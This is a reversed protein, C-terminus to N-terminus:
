AGSVRDACPLGTSRPGPPTRGFFGAGRTGARDVPRQDARSRRLADTRARALSRGGPHRSLFQSLSEDAAQSDIKGLVRDLPHWPDADKEMRSRFRWVRGQVELALLGAEELLQTTVPAEGHVFEAGLEIPLPLGPPHLTFIRGGIRDRAELVLVEHGQRILERAAMLGSAGAGVIAVQTRIM